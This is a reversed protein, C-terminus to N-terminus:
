TDIFQPAHGEAVVPCRVAHGPALEQLPPLAKHCSPKVLPCALRFPCGALDTTRGAAVQAVQDRWGEALAALRSPQVAQLARTYPHRPTARAGGPMAEVVVGALMVLVRDCRTILEELQHSVLVLALGRG